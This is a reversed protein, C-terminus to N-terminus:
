VEKSLDETIFKHLYKEYMEKQKIEEPKTETKGIYVTIAILAINILIAILMELLINFFLSISLIVIPIYKFDKKWFHSLTTFVILVTFYISWGIIYNFNDLDVIALTTGVGRCVNAEIPLTDFFIGMWAFAYYIMTIIYLFRKM